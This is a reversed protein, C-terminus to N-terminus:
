WNSNNFVAVDHESNIIRIHLLQSPPRCDSFSFSSVSLVVLLIAVELLAVFSLTGKVFRFSRTFFKFMVTLGMGFCTGQMTVSSLSTGLIM